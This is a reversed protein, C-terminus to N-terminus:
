EKDLFKYKIIANSDNGRRVFLIDKDESDILKQIENPIWFKVNLFNALEIFNMIKEEHKHDKIIKVFVKPYEDNTSENNFRKIEQDLGDIIDILYRYARRQELTLAGWKGYDADGFQPCKTYEKIQEITVM